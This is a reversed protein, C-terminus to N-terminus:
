ILLEFLFLTSDYLLWVVETSNDNSDAIEADESINAKELMSSLEEHMMNNAKEVLSQLNLMNEHVQMIHNHLKKFHTDLKSVVLKDMYSHRCGAEMYNTARVSPNRAFLDAVVNSTDHLPPRGFLDLDQQFGALMQSGLKQMNEFDLVRTMFDEFILAIEKQKAM